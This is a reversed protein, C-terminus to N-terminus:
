ETLDSGGAWQGVRFVVFEAPKIPAIGIVLVLRGQDLDAPTMTTRDCKVFFAEDPTQGQFMGARWLETLFNGVSSRLTAWLPEENPECVVWGIAKRISAEVFILLRRVNVYRWEPDSAMTRAGWLLVGKGPFYRLLNVGQPHLAEQQAQTIRLALGREPDLPDALLGRVAENAPAKHVGREQDTRAYIGAIHGGPPVLVERGNMAHRVRVWPLYYAGYRSDRPPRHHLLDPVSLPAQLIAFRDKLRACHELLQGTVSPFGPEDPCCVLAIEDVQGLLDLAAQCDSDACAGGDRGRFLWRETAAAPRGGRGARELRVLRSTGNVRKVYFDPSAEDSSLHAYEERVTAEGPHITHPGWYRVTLGFLHRSGAPLIDVAIRNGWAGPGVASVRLKGSVTAGAAAAGRGCVRQVYCRRGGNQFYGEVAYTLYRDQAGDMVYDGFMARYEAVSSVLTPVTPGREAIGLFGGTGTAVGTIAQSGAQIEPVYIGPSLSEPM